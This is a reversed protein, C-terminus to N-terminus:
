KSIWDTREVEIGLNSIFNKASEITKHTNTGRHGSLDIQYWFPFLSTRKQVEYGNFNDKVIRYQKKIKM